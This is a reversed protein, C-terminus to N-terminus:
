QHLDRRRRPLRQGQALALMDQEEARLVDAGKGARTGSGFAGAQETNM